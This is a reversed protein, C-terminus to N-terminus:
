QLPAGDIVKAREFAKEKAYHELSKALALLDLNEEPKETRKAIESSQDMLQTIMTSLDKAKIARYGVVDGVQDYVPDGKDLREDLMRFCKHTLRTLNSFAISRVDDRVCDELFRWGTRTVMEPLDRPLIGLVRAVLHHQEGCLYM